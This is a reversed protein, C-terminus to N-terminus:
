TRLNKIIEIIRAQDFQHNNIMVQIFYKKEVLYIDYKLKLIVTEEKSIEIGHFTWQGFSKSVQTFNKPCGQWIDYYPDTSWFGVYYNM